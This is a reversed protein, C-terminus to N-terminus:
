IEGKIPQIENDNDRWDTIAVAGAPLPQNFLYTWVDQGDPTTTKVRRYLGDAVREYRDLVNMFTSPVSAVRYYFQNDTDLTTLAPFRGLTYLDGNMFGESIIPLNWKPNMLTGYILVLENTM